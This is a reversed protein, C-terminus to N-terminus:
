LEPYQTGFIKRWEGSANLNDSASEYECAKVARQYASDVKSEWADGYYVYEYIGPVISSGNVMLRLMGFYDRIMWDYYWSSKDYNEWMSLFSIATLELVLSKIPVNCWKKWAKLM